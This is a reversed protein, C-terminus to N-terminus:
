KSALIQNLDNLWSEVITKIIKNLINEIIDKNDFNKELYVNIQEWSLKDFSIDYVVENINRKAGIDDKISELLTSELIGNILIFFDNHTYNFDIYFQVFKAVDKQSLSVVSNLSRDYYFNHISNEECLTFNSIFGNFVDYILQTSFEKNRIKSPTKDTTKIFKESLTDQDYFIDDLLDRYKVMSYLENVILYDEQSLNPFHFGIKVLKQFIDIEEASIITSLVSKKDKTFQIYREFAQEEKVRGTFYSIKMLWYVCNGVSSHKDFYNYSIELLRKYDNLEKFHIEDYLLEKWSSEM